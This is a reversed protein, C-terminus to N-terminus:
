EGVSTQGLIWGEVARVFPPSGKPPGPPQFGGVVNLMGVLGVVADFPDEGSSRPGFGDIVLDLMEPEWHLDLHESWEVLKEGQRRRDSQRRKSWGSRDFGAHRYIEAPYVEAVTVERTSMLDNLEGDFPWLAVDLGAALAPQIVQEWGQIAARSLLPLFAAETKGGATPALLLVDKGDHIPAIAEMQSPRLDDWGMTNVIHYRIAPHFQEFASM